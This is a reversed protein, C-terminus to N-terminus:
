EYPDRGADLARMRQAWEDDGPDLARAREWASRADACRGAAWCADALAGWYEDNRAEDSAVRRELVPLLERPALEALRNVWDDPDGHEEALARWLLAVGRETERADLWLEAVRGWEEPGVDRGDRACRELAAEAGAVNGSSALLEVLLGRPEPSGPSAAVQREVEALARVPDLEFLLRVAHDDGADERLLEEILGRAEAANGSRLLAEALRARLATSGPPAQAALLRSLHASVLEPQIHGLADLFDENGPALALAALLAQKEGAVNRSQGLAEAVRAWLGLDQSSYRQLLELSRTPWGWELNLQALFEAMRRDSLLEAESASQLEALLDSSHRPAAALRCQEPVRRKCGASSTDAPSVLPVAVAPEVLGPGPARAEELPGSPFLREHAARVSRQQSVVAVTLFALGSFAVGLTWVQTRM